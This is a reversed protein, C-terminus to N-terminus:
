AHMLQGFLRVQPNGAGATKKFMIWRYPEALQLKGDATVDAGFQQEDDTAGPQVGKNSVRVQVTQGSMGSFTISAPVNMQNIPLWGTRETTATTFTNEFQFTGAM